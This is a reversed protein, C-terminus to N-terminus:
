SSNKYFTDDMLERSPVNKQSRFIDQNQEGEQHTTPSTGPEFNSIKKGQFKSPMEEHDWVELTAVVTFDARRIRPGKYTFKSERWFARLIKEKDGANQFKLIIHRLTPGPYLAPFKEIQLSKKKGSTYKVWFVSM